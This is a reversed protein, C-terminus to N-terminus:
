INNMTYTSMQSVSMSKETTSVINIIRLYYVNLLFLIRKIKKQFDIFVEKGLIFYKRRNYLTIWFNQHM